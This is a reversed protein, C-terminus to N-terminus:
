ILSHRKEGELSGGLNKCEIKYAPEFFFILLILVECLQQHLKM